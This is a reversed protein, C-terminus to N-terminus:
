LVPPLRKNPKSTSGGNTNNDQGPIKIWKDPVMLFYQDMAKRFREGYQDPPLVTCERGRLTTKGRNEIRKYWTYPGIFDVIGVILEKKEDNVGVLLSYDMVNASALFMTDNKISDQIIKKSHGHLMLLSRYRGDVWDGDWGVEADDNSGSSSTRKSVSHRDSVGKLDFKRSMKVNAFLHDMVLVDLETTVGTVLNKQKITYFGFIKALVTPNKDSNNMYNFYLPAFKLLADKEVLTWNSALQKIVLQDDHTKFFVARSKGGSANWASCRLLSQVYPGTVNCRRRLNEFEEAYYVTCVFNSKGEAFRLKIHPKHTPSGQEHSFMRVRVRYEEQAEWRALDAAAAAAQAVALAAAGAAQVGTNAASLTPSGSGQGGPSSAGGAPTSSDNWSEESSRREREMKAVEDLYEKSMELSSAAARAREAIARRVNNLRDPRVSFTRVLGYLAEEEERYRRGMEDLALQCRVQDPTGCNKAVAEAGTAVELAHLHDKLSGYFYLIDLRTADLMREAAVDLGFPFPRDLPPSASIGVFLPNQTGDDHLLLMSSSSPQTSPEPSSSRSTLIASSATASTQYLGNLLTAGLAALDPTVAGIRSTSPAVLTSSTGSSPRSVNEEGLGSLPPSSGPTPYASKLPLPPRIREPLLHEPMVQIKPVRMEFLDISEYSIVVVRSGRRFHRRPTSRQGTHSCLNTPVFQPSYCLLELYKAFSFYWSADSLPVVETRAMCEVCVTWTYIGREDPVPGFESPCDEVKVSIRSKNHTYTIVHGAIAKGCGLDPCLGRSNSCLLEVYEGLTKDEYEGSKQYYEVTLIKPPQCPIASNPSWYFSYSFTISQHRVIGVISNNNTMYYQLGTKSDVSIKSAQSSGNRVGLYRKHLPPSGQLTDPKSPSLSVDGTVRGVLAAQQASNGIEQIMAAVKEVRDMRERYEEDRLRLLLYPAPLFVDPSCSICTEEIQRIAREFRNSGDIAQQQGASNPGIQVMSNSRTSSSSDSSFLLSKPADSSSSLYAAKSAAWFANSGIRRTSNNPSDSSFTVSEDDEEEM